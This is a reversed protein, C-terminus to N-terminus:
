ADRVKKSSVSESARALLRLEKEEEKKTEEEKAEPVKQM